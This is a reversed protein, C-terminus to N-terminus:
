TSFSILSASSHPEHVRNEGLADREVPDEDVHGDLVAARIANQITASDNAGFLDERNPSVFSSM